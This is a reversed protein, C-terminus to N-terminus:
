SHHTIIMAMAMTKIVSIIFVEMSNKVLRIEGSYLLMAPFTFSRAAAATSNAASMAAVKAPIM